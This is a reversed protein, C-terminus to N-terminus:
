IFVFQCPESFRPLGQGLNSRCSGWIGPLRRIRIKFGLGLRRFAVSSLFRSLTRRAVREDEEGERRRGEGSWQVGRWRNGGEVEQLHERGGSHEAEEEQRRRRQAAVVEGERERVGGRVSRTRAAARPPIMYTSPGRDCRRRLRLRTARARGLEGYPDGDAVALHAMQVFVERQERLKLSHHDTPTIPFSERSLANRCVANHRVRTATHIEPQWPAGFTCSWHTRMVDSLQYRASHRPTHELWKCQTCKIECISTSAPRMPLCALAETITV